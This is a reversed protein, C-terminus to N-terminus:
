FCKKIYHEGTRSCWGSDETIFLSLSLSYQDRQPFQTQVAALCIDVSWHIAASVEAQLWSSSVIWSLWHNCCLSAANRRVSLWLHKNSFINALYKYEGTPLHWRFCFHFFLEISQQRYYYYNADAKIQDNQLKVQAGRRRVKVNNLVTHSVDYQKGSSVPQKLWADSYNCFSIIISCCYPFSLDWVTWHILCNSRVQLNHDFVVVASVCTSTQIHAARSERFWTAETCVSGPKLSDRHWDCPM